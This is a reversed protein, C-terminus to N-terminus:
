QKNTVLSETIRGLQCKWNKLMVYSVFYSTIQRTKAITDFEVHKENHVTECPLFRIWSGM